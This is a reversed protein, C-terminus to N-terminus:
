MKPLKAWPLLLLVVTTATLVLTLILSYSGQYTLWLTQFTTRYYDFYGGVADSGYWYMVYWKYFALSFVIGIIVAFLTIGFGFMVYRFKVKEKKQLHHIKVRKMVNACLTPPPPLLREGRLADEIILDLEKEDIRKM